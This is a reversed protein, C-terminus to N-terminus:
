NLAVMIRQEYQLSKRNVEKLVDCFIHFYPALKLSQLFGVSKKIIFTFIHDIIMQLHASLFRVISYM